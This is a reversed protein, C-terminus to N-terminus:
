PLGLLVGYRGFLTHRRGRQRRRYARRGVSSRISSVLLYGLHCGRLFVPQTLEGVRAAPEHDSLGGLQVSVLGYRHAEEAFVKREVTATGRAAHDQEIGVARVHLGVQCRGVGGAIHHNVALAGVDFAVAQAAGVVGPAKAGIALTVINRVVLALNWRSGADLAPLHDLAQASHPHPVVGLAALGLPIVGAQGHPFVGCPHAGLPIVETHQVLMGLFNHVVNAVVAVEAGDVAGAHLTKFVFELANVGDLALATAVARQHRFVTHALFQVSDGGVVAWSQQDRVQRAHFLRVHQDGVGRHVVAGDFHPVGHDDLRGAAGSHGGLGVLNSGRLELVGCQLGEQLVNLHPVVLSRAEIAQEDGAIAREHLRANPVLLEVVRTGLLALVLLLAFAHVHGVANRGVGLGGLPTYWPAACAIIAEQAAGTCPQPGTHQIALVWPKVPM